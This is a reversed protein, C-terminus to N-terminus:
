YYTSFIKDTMYFLSGIYYGEVIRHWVTQESLHLDAGGSTWSLEGFM